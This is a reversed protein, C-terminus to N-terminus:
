LLKDLEYAAIESKYSEWYGNPRGPPLIKWAISEVLGGPKFYARKPHTVGIPVDEFHDIPADRIFAEFEANRGEWIRASHSATTAQDRYATASIAPARLLGLLAFAALTLRTLTSRKTM